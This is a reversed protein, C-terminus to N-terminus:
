PAAKASLGMVPRQDDVSSNGREALARKLEAVQEQSVQTGPPRAMRLNTLGALPAADAVQTGTLDLMQLNTLSALPAADAVQTDQSTSRKAPQHPQRAPRADAVQTDALDLWQLNTLGALPAPDAVQTGKLNLWQM